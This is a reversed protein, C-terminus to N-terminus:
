RWWRWRSRQSRQDTLLTTLRTREADSADLRQRLDRITAERDDLLRQLAAIEGPQVDHSEGNRVGNGAFARQLEAVDIQREGSDSVTYSLRGNKMARHITSQNRGTLKAAEALGITAM